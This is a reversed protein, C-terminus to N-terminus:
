VGNNFTGPVNQWSGQVSHSIASFDLWQPGISESIYVNGVCQARHNFQPFQYRGISQLM